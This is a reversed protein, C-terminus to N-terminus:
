YESGGGGGGAQSERFGEDGGEEQGQKQEYGGLADLVDAVLELGGAGPFHEGPQVLGQQGIM